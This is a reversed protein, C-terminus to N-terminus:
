IWGLLDAAVASKDIAAALGHHRDTLQFLARINLDHHLVSSKNSSNPLYLLVLPTQMDYHDACSNLLNFNHCKCYGRKGKCHVSKFRVHTRLRKGIVVTLVVFGVVVGQIVEDFARVIFRHRQFFDNACRLATRNKVVGSLAKVVSEKPVAQFRVAAALRGIHNSSLDISFPAAVVCECVGKCLASDAVETGAPSPQNFFFVARKIDDICAIGACRDGSRINRQDGAVNPFM